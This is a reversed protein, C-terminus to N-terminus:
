ERCLRDVRWCTLRNQRSVSAAECASTIASSRYSRGAVYLCWLHAKKACGATLSSRAVSAHSPVALLSARSAVCLWSGRNERSAKSHHQRPCEGSSPRPTAPQTTETHTASNHREPTTADHLCADLSMSTSRHFISSDRRSSQSMRSAASTSGQFASSPSSATGRLLPCTLRQACAHGAAQVAMSRSCQLATVANCHCSNIPPWRFGSCTYGRAPIRVPVNTCRISM